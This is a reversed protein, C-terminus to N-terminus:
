EVQNIHSSTLAIAMSEYTSRGAGGYMGTMGGNQFCGTLKSFGAVHGRHKEVKPPLIKSPPEYVWLWKM